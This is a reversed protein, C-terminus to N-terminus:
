VNWPDILEVGSEQFDPVNRTAVAMRHARAIAAIQIDLPAIPQGAGRRATVIDAYARASAEDFPLVRRAFATDFISDAAAHIQAKRRGDPLIAIGAFIEAMTVTTTFIGEAPQHRLWDAVRPSRHGSPKMLESLVNTDLVIM